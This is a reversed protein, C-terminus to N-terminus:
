YNESCGNSVVYGQMDMGVKERIGKWNDIWNGYVDANELKMVENGGLKYTVSGFRSRGYNNVVVRNVDTGSINIESLLRVSGPVILENTTLQPLQITISERQDCTKKQLDYKHIKRKPLSNGKFRSYESDLKISEGNM